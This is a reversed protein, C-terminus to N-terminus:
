ESREIQPEDKSKYHSPMEWRIPKSDSICNRCEGNYDGKNVCTDCPYKTQLEDERKQIVEYKNIFM